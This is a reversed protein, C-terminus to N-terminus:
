VSTVEMALDAILERTMRLAEPLAAAIPPSLGERDFEPEVTLPECGILHMPPLTLGMERAFARASEVTATHGDPSAALDSASDLEIHYLTGPQGGRQVADLIVVASWGQDLAFALDLCRIGFDRVEVGEAWAETALGRAAEVGFADDGLFINGIGAILFRKM